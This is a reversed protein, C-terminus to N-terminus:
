QEEYADFWEGVKKTRQRGVYSTCTSSSTEPDRCHTQAEEVTLGTKVTRRHIAGDKFYMRVIKHMIM